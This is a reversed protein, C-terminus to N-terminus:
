IRHDREGNLVPAPGPVPMPPLGLDDTGCRCPPCPSGSAPWPCTALYERCAAHLVVMSRVSWCTAVRAKRLAARPHACLLTVSFCPLLVHRARGRPQPGLPVRHQSSPAARRGRGLVDGHLSLGLAAHRLATPVSGSKKGGTGSPKAWGGAGPGRLPAAHVELASTAILLLLFLLRALAM